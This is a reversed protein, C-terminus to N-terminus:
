APKDGLPLLSVGVLVVAGAALLALRQSPGIGQFNDAGLLDNAFSGIAALIGLAIFAYGLQRKTM